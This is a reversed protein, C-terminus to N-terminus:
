EIKINSNWGFLFSALFETLIFLIDGLQVKSHFSSNPYTQYNKERSPSFFSGIRLEFPSFFFLRRENWKEGSVPSKKEKESLSITKIMHQFAWNIQFSLKASPYKLLQCGSHKWGGGVLKYHWCPPWSKIPNSHIGFVRVGIKSWDFFFFYCFKNWFRFIVLFGKKFRKKAYWIQCLLILNSEWGLPQWITSNQNSHDIMSEGVARL